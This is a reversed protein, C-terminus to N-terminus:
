RPTTASGLVEGAAVLKKISTTIDKHPKSCEKCLAMWGQPYAQYAAATPRGCTVSNRLVECTRSIPRTRWKTHM